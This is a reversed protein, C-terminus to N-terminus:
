RAAKEEINNSESEKNMGGSGSSDFAVVVEVSSVRWGVSVGAGRM